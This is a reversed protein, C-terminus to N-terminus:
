GDRCGTRVIDHMELAVLHSGGTVPTDFLTLVLKLPEAESGVALWNGPKPRAGVAIDFGGSRNKLVHQSHYAAPFRADVGLSENGEDTAHLTWFRAPPTRGILRYDCRTSLRGGESDRDAIFVVGEANGLPLVGERARRAKAYPDANVAQVRPWATWPGVSVSGFGTSARLMYVASATAGGFALLLVLAISVPLRFL